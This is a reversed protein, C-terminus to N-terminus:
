ISFPISYQKRNDDLNLNLENLPKFAKFNKLNDKNNLIINSLNEVTDEDTSVNSIKSRMVTRVTEPENYLIGRWKSRNTDLNDLILKKSKEKINYYDGKLLKNFDSQYEELPELLYKYKFGYEPNDLGNLKSDSLIGLKNDEIGIKIISEAYTNLKNRNIGVLPLLLQGAENLEM